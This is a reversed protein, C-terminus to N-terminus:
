QTGTRELQNIYLMQLGSALITWFLAAAFSCFSFKSIDPLGAFFIYVDCASILSFIYAHVVANSLLVVWIRKGTWGERIAATELIVNKYAIKLESDGACITKVDQLIKEARTFHRRFEGSVKSISIMFLISILFHVVVVARWLTSFQPDTYRGTLGVYMLATFTFYATVMWARQTEEFRAHTKHHEYAKAILDCALKRFEQSVQNEM